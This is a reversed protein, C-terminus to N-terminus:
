KETNRGAIWSQTVVQGMKQFLEDYNGSKYDDPNISSTDLTEANRLYSQAIFAITRERPTSADTSLKQLRDIYMQYDAEFGKLKLLVINYISAETVGDLKHYLGEYYASRVRNYLEQNSENSYIARASVKHYVSYEAQSIYRSQYNQAALEDTITFASLCLALTILTKTSTNM